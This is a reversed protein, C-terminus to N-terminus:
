LWVVILGQSPITKAFIFSKERSTSSSIAVLQLDDDFYFHNQKRYLQTNHESKMKMRVFLVNYDYDQLKEGRRFNAM